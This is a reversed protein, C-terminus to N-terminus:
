ILAIVLPGAAHRNRSGKVTNAVTVPKAAFAWVPNAIYASGSSAARSRGGMESGSIMSSMRESHDARFIEFGEAVETIARKSPWGPAGMGSIERLGM